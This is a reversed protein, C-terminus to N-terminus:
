RRRHPVKFKGWTAFFQSFGEKGLDQFIADGVFAGEEGGERVEPEAKEGGEDGREVCM